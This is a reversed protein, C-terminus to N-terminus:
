AHEPVFIPFVFEIHHYRQVPQVFAQSGSKGRPEANEALLNRIGNRNRRFRHEFAVLFLDNVALSAHSEFRLFHFYPRQALHSRNEFSDRRSGHHSQHIGFLFGCSIGLCASSSTRRDASHRLSTDGLAIFSLENIDGFDSACHSGSRRNPISFKAVCLSRDNSVISPIIKPTAATTAISEMPAPACCFTIAKMSCSPTRFRITSAFSACFSCSRCFTRFTEFPSLRLSQWIM